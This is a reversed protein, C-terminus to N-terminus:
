EQSEKVYTGNENSNMVVRQPWAQDLLVSIFTAVPCAECLPWRKAKVHHVICDVVCYFTQSSPFDQSLCDDSDSPLKCIMDVDKM